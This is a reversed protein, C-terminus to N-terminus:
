SLGGTFAQGGLGRGRDVASVHAMGSATKAGTAAGAKSKLQAYGLAAMPVDGCGFDSLGAM